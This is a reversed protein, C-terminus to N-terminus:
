DEINKVYKAMYISQAIGFVLTSGLIGFLKFDVWTDTNFYYAIFLNVAGMFAFFTAWSVNLKYWINTPLIIKGEMMRQILPKNGLFQTAGFMIAFVWYIATPKWKIFMENHFILTASGLVLILLLTVVHTLEFRRHKLWFFGVQALSAAMATLTAIYIGYFKYAIFFLLVPFFDFLLKM